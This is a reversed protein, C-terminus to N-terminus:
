VIVAVIDFVSQTRDVVIHIREEILRSGLEAEFLADFKWRDAAGKPGAIQENPDAASNVDDIELEAAAHANERKIELALNIDQVRLKHEIRRSRRCENGSNKAPTSCISSVIRCGIDISGSALHIQGNRHRVALKIFEDRDVFVGACFRQRWRWAQRAATVAPKTRSPRDARFM